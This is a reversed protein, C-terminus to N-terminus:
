LLTKLSQYLNAGSMKCIVTVQWLKGIIELTKNSRAAQIDILPKSLSIIDAKCIHCESGKPMEKELWVVRFWNQSKSCSRDSLWYSTELNSPSLSPLSLSLATRGGASIFQDTKSIRHSNKSSHCINTHESPHWRVQLCLEETWFCWTLYQHLVQWINVITQYWRLNFLLVKRYITARNVLKIVSAKVIGVITFAKLSCQTQIM